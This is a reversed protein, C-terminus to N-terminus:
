FRKDRSSIKKGNEDLVYPLVVCDLEMLGNKIREANIKLGNSLTDETLLIADITKDIAAPGYIDNLELIENKLKVRSLIKNVNKKRESFKQIKEWKEKRGKIFEDSVLGIVAEKAYYKAMSLFYKHGIHARDFTGGIAIKNFKEKKFRGILIKIEQKKEERTEVACIGKQPCGYVVLDSNELCLIAPIALLDEEGKVFLNKGEKVAKGIMAWSNRDIAAPPNYLTLDHKLITIKENRKTKVDFIKVHSFLASSCFDGVTVIKQFKNEKLFKDYKEQVEKKNGFIVRGLPKKLEQRLINTLYVTKM